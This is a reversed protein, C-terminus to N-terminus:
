GGSGIQVWVQFWRELSVRRRLEGLLFGEVIWLDGVSGCLDGVVWFAMGLLYEGPSM